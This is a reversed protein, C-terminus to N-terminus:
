LLFRIHHFRTRQGNGRTRQKISQSKNIMQYNVTNASKVFVTLSYTSSISLKRLPKFLSVRARAFLSFDRDSKCRLNAQQRKGWDKWYDSGWGCWLYLVSRLSFFPYLDAEKLNCSSVAELCFASHWIFTICCSSESNCCVNTTNHPTFEDTHFLTFTTM